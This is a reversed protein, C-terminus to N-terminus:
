KQLYEIQTITKDITRQSAQYRYHADNVKQELIYTEAKDLSDFTELGEWFFQNLLIALGLPLLILLIVTAAITVPTLKTQVRYKVKGSVYTTCKIRYSRKYDIRM